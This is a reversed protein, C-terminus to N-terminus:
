QRFFVLVFFYNIFFYSNVLSVTLTKPVASYWILARIANSFMLTPSILPNTSLLDFRLWSPLALTVSLAQTVLVTNFMLQSFYLMVAVSLWKFVPHLCYVKSLHSEKSSSVREFIPLPANIHHFFHFGIIKAIKPILYVLM